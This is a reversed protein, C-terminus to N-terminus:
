PSSNLVERGMNGGWSAMLYSPMVNWSWCDVTWTEAEGTFGGHWLRSYHRPCSCGEVSQCHWWWRRPIHSSESVQSSGVPFTMLAVLFCFLWVNWRHGPPWTLSHLNEAQFSTEILLIQLGLRLTICFCCWLVHTWSHWLYHSWNRLWLAMKHIYFRCFTGFRLHTAGPMSLVVLLSSLSRWLCKLFGSMHCMVDMEVWPGPATEVLSDQCSKLLWGACFIKVPCAGKRNEERGRSLAQKRWSNALQKMAISCCHESASGHWLFSCAEPM